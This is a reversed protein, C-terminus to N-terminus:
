YYSFLVEVAGGNNITKRFYVEPYQNLLYDIEMKLAGIGKGHIITITARRREIAKEIFEKATKIQYNLIIETRQNIMSPALTEIHLDLPLEFNIKKSKAKDHYKNKPKSITTKPIDKDDLLELDRATVLLIKDEIKVKAKGNVEGEFKGIRGSSVIKVWDGIWFDKM